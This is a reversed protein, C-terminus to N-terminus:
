KRVRLLALGSNELYRIAEDRQLKGDLIDEFSDFTLGPHLTRLYVRAVRSAGYHSVVTEKVVVLSM